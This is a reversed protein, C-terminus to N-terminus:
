CPFRHCFIYFSINTIVIMVPKMCCIFVQRGNVKFIRALLHGTQSSWFVDKVKKALFYTCIASCVALAVLGVAIAVGPSDCLQSAAAAHHHGGEPHRQYRGGVYIPYGPRQKERGSDGGVDEDSGDVRRQKRRERSGRSGKKRPM